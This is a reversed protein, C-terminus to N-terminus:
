YKIANEPPLPVKSSTSDLKLSNTELTQRRLSQIKDGFGESETEKQKRVVMLYVHKKWWVREGHHKQRAVLTFVISGASSASFHRSNHALVFKEKKLQAWYKTLSLQRLCQISQVGAFLNIQKQSKLGIIYRSCRPQYYRQLAMTVFLLTNTSLVCAQIEQVQVLSVALSEPFSWGPWFLLYMRLKM